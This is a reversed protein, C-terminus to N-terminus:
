YSTEYTWEGDKNPVCQRFARVLTHRFNKPKTLNAGSLNTSRCVEVTKSAKGWGGNNLHSAVKRLISHTGTSAM